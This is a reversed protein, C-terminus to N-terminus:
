GIQNGRRQEHGGPGEEAKRQIAGHGLAIERPHAAEEEDAQDADDESADDVDEQAVAGDLEDDRAGADEDERAQGSVVRLLEAGEGLRALLPVSQDAREREVEVEDVEEEEQQPEHAAPAIVSCRQSRAANKSTSPVSTEVLM